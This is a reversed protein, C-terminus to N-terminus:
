SCTTAWSRGRGQRSGRGCKVPTESFASGGIIAYVPIRNWAKSRLSLTTGLVPGLPPESSFTAKISSNSSHSFHCTSSCLISILCISFCMLLPQLSFLTPCKFCLVFHWELVLLTGKLSSLVTPKPGKSLRTEAPQAKPWKGHSSAEMTWSCM